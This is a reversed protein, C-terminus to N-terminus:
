VPSQAKGYFAERIYIGALAGSVIDEVFYCTVYFIPQMGPLLGATRRPQGYDSDSQAFNRRFKAQWEKYHSM